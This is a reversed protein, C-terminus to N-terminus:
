PLGGAEVFAAVAVVASLVAGSWVAGVAWTPFALADGPTTALSRGLRVLDVASLAAVPHLVGLAALLGVAPRVAGPRDGMLAQGVLAAWALLLVFGGGFWYLFLTTPDLQV